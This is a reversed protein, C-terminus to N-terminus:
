YTIIVSILGLGLDRLTHTVFLFLGAGGSAGRVKDIAEFMVDVGKQADLRGLFVFMPISADVTFNLAEQVAQKIVKKKELSDATYTTQPLPAPFFTFPSPPLPSPPLPHSPPCPPFPPCLLSAFTPFPTSLPPLRATPFPTQPDPFPTQPDCITASLMPSPSFTFIQSPGGRGVFEWQCMISYVVLARQCSHTPNRSITDM